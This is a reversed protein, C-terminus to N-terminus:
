RPSRSCAKPRHPCTSRDPALLSWAIIAVALLQLTAAGIARRAEAWSSACCFIPPCVAARIAPRMRGGGQDPLRGITVGAVAPIGPLAVLRLSQLPCNQPCQLQRRDPKRNLPLRLIPEPRPVCGLGTLRVAMALRDRSTWASSTAARRCCSCSNPSSRTSAATISSRCGTAPTPEVIRRHRVFGWNFPPPAAVESLRPQLDDGGGPRHRCGAALDCLGKRVAGARDAQPDADGALRAASGQPRGGAQGVADPGPGREQCQGGPSGPRVARARAIHPLLPAAAPSRGADPCLHRAGARVAGAGRRVPAVPGRDPWPRRLECTRLYRDRPFLAGRRSRPRPHARGPFAARM